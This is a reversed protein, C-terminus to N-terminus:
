EAWEPLNVPIPARNRWAKSRRGLGPSRGHRGAHGPGTAQRLRAQRPLCSSRPGATSLLAVATCPSAPSRSSGILRVIELRNLLLKRGAPARTTGRARPTNPHAPRLPLRATRRRASPTSSRPAGPVCSKVRATLALRGRLTLSPTTTRAKRNSAILKRGKEAARHGGTTWRPAITRARPGAEANSGDILLSLRRALRPAARAHTIRVEFHLHDGTSAGTTGVRGIVSRPERAARGPGPIASQHGYCTSLDTAQYLGHYLCTYNGYGGYWGAQTVTGDATPTSPTSARGPRRRRAAAVRPLLPRIAHRLRQVEVRHVPTLFYAGPSRPRRRAVVAVTSRRGPCRARASPRRHPARPRCSRTNRRPDRASPTPLPMAQSQQQGPRKVPGPGAAAQRPPSHPPSRRSATDAVADAHQKRRATNDAGQRWGAARLREDRRAPEARRARTLRGTPSSPRPSPRWLSRLGAPREGPSRPSSATVQTRAQEVQRRAAVQHRRGDQRGQRRRTAPGPRRSRGPPSSAPGRGAQGPAPLLADRRHIGAARRRRHPPGRTPRQAQALQQDVRDTTTPDAQSVRGPRHADSPSGM